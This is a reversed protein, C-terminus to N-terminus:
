DLKDDKVCTRELLDTMGKDTAGVSEPVNCIISTRLLPWLSEPFIGTDIKTM